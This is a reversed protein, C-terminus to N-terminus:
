DGAWFPPNQPQIPPNSLANIQQAIQNEVGPMSICGAVWMYAMEQTIDAYPVFEAPNPSGLKVTGSASSTNTGDTGTCVWNIGVVVNQLAGEQPNVIFQPYTWTFQM